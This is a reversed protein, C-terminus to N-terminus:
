HLDDASPIRDPGLSTVLLDSAGPITPAYRYPTGWPDIALGDDFMFGLRFGLETLRAPPTGTLQRYSAVEDRLFRIELTAQRIKRQAQVTGGAVLAAVVLVLMGVSRVMGALVSRRLLLYCGANLVLAAPHGSAIGVLGLAGLFLGLGKRSPVWASDDRSAAIEPAPPSALWATDLPRTSEMEARAAVAATELNVLQRALDVAAGAAAQEHALATHEHGEALFCRVQRQKSLHILPPAEERCRAMALPCRTHFRCGTPPKLSTPVDGHLIVRQVQHRPDPVPIASFLARTYPHAAFKFLEATPAIEVIQGLYMVMVRDSIHRVVSLDHSIFLYALGLDKRLQILLNIVQARISVDLASVAEDCVVLKPNLALARAIGIRQRQGGSFEHPYRGMASAPLGVKHLLTKVQEHKAAGRALGHVELPEGLIDEVRKRPNLSSFPDQFIIQMYRRLRRAERSPLAALDQGLFRVQGGTPRILRLIARGVTSKGCGSEGVLGLTEGPQIEFSVGDVARLQDVTARWFGRAVPFYVELNDVQLLASTSDSTSSPQSTM